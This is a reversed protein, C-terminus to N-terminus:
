LNPRYIVRSLAAALFAFPSVYLEPRYYLTHEMKKNTKILTRGPLHLYLLAPTVSRRSEHCDWGNDLLSIISRNHREQTARVRIEIM